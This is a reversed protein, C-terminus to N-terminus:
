FCCSVESVKFDMEQSIFFLDALIDCLFYPELSAPVSDLSLIQGHIKSGVGM